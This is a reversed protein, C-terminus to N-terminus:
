TQATADVRDHLDTKKRNGSDEGVVRGPLRDLLSNLLTEALPTFTHHLFIEGGDIGGEFMQGLHMDWGVHGTAEIDTLSDRVFRGGKYLFDRGPHKLTM